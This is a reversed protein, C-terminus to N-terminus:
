NPTVRDNDFLRTLHTLRREINDVLRYGSVALPLFWPVGGYYFRSPFSIDDFATSGFSDGLVKHGLKMGLYSSMSVGSGCYGLAYYIDDHVGIHALEDFTYAVTGCWSHSVSYGRLEPFIRCMEMYLRPASRLPDTESASVRGGFLVRRRDPSSRFYYIVRRTDSVVRNHPFLEDILSEPLEETSIIYSGIPIVRRDLWDVLGSTYGNTAIVVDRAIVDGRVTRVKYESTKKSAKKSTSLREIGLVGCDGFVLCGSSLCVGLLESHLRGPDVSLHAPFILGGYYFDSGIEDRQSLRSVPHSEINDDTRLRESERCLFEYRGPTHAAHYRGVRGLNCDLGESVVFDYFWELAESGSSRIARAIELGYRRTLTSLSPKVSTSVQGGNRTSCGNGISSSDLILTSRGSRSTVLGCNLGTYGSGVILVDVSSPFDDSSSSASSNNDDDNDRWYSSCIIDGSVM